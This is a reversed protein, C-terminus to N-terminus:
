PTSARSPPASDRGGCCSLGAQFGELMLMEWLARSDRQPRGWETDHYATMVPDGEAWSCRRKAEPETAM